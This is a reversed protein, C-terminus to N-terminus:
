SVYPSQELDAIIFLTIETLCYQTSVDCDIYVLVSEPSPSSEDNNVSSSFDDVADDSSSSYM